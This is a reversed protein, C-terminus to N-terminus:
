IFKIRFNEEGENLAMFCCIEQTKKLDITKLLNTNTLTIKLKQINKKDDEEELTKNKTVKYHALKIGITQYLPLLTIICIMGKPVAVGFKMRIKRSEGPRIKIRNPFYLVFVNNELHKPRKFGKKVEFIIKRM